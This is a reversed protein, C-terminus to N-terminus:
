LSPNLSDGPPVRKNLLVICAIIAIGVGVYFSIAMAALVSQLIESTTLGKLQM